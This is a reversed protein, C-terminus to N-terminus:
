GRRRIPTDVLLTVLHVLAVSLAILVSGEVFAASEQGTVLLVIVVLPLHVVSLGYSIEVLLSLPRSALLRVACLVVRTSGALCVLAAGTLPVLAIWGPFMRQVGLLAGTSVLAALGAWGLVLRLWPRALPSGPRPPGTAAPLLALLTGAAFEWIRATTDFYAIPQQVGTSHVSWGFSAVAIVGFVVAVVARPSFRSRRAVVACLAFLLPWLLFVQGQISLSWFHQLTST